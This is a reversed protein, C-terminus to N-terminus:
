FHIRWWKMQFSEGFKAWVKYFILERRHLCEIELLWSQMSHKYGVTPVKKLRYKLPKNIRVDCPQVISTFNPPIMIRMTKPEQLLANLSESKHCAYDDLLWAPEGDVNSRYGTKWNKELEPNEVAGGPHLTLRTPNREAREKIEAYDSRWKRIQSPFIGYMRATTCIKRTEMAEKPIHLKCILTLKDNRVKQLMTRLM